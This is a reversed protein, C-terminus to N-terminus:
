EKRRERLMALPSEIHGSVPDLLLVLAKLAMKVNNVAEFYM